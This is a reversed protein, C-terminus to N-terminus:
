HKIPGAQMECAGNYYETSAGPHQYAPGPQSYGTYQGAYSLEPVTNASKYLTGKKFRRFIVAGYILQSLCALSYAGDTNALLYM